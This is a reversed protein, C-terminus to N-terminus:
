SNTIILKNKMKGAKWSSLKLMNGPNGCQPNYALSVTSINISQFVSINYAPLNVILGLRSNSKEDMLKEVKWSTNKLMENNELRLLPLRRRM